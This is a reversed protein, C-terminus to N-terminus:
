WFNKTVFRQIMTESRTTGALPVGVAQGTGLFIGLLAVGGLIHEVGLIEVLAPHHAVVQSAAFSCTRESAIINIVSIYPVHVFSTCYMYLSFHPAIKMTSAKFCDDFRRM